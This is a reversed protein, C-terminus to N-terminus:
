QGTRKAIADAIRLAELSIERLLGGASNHFGCFFLGPASSVEGRAPASVDPLFSNFGPVFGTALIVSDFSAEKGDSFRVGEQTFAELGGCVKIKGQKILKITGVDIVPIKAYTRVQTASGYSAKRLGYRTLDGFRLRSMPTTLSDVLPAPLGSTLISLRQIPFGLVDRSIVNVPSRVSISPHANHEYLDLAIEAGSNGFGVVLVRKGRYAEGNRYEASHIIQGMFKEQGPWAPLVPEHNIGTAIVVNPARYSTDSTNVKWMGDLDRMGVVPQQYHPEIQFRKAYAEFYAIVQLRSPYTPYDPPFPFGPLASSRKATHLHLRDYHRHWAPAVCDERELIEFAINAHRLCAAVALGAPGVGIIVVQTKNENQTSSM